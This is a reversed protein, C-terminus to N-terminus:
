ARRELVAIFFGDSDPPLLTDKHHVVTDTRSARVSDVVQENEEILLSCTAYVVRGGPKVKDLATSLLARQREVLSPLENEDLRAALDPARRLTGTGSCPADVLVRDFSGDVFPTDLGDAVVRQIGKSVSRTLRQADIDAAIVTAGTAALLRAKGGGGACLDLVREDVTAAVAAAVLQSGEDMPWVARRLAAPLKHLALKGRPVRVATACRPSSSAGDIAAIVDDRSVLRTDVALDPRAPTALATITDDDFRSQLREHLWRPWYQAGTVSLGSAANDDVLSKLFAPLSASGRAIVGDDLGAAIAALLLSALDLERRRPATGGEKKRADDVLKEVAVKHRAWSFALDASARRERPGTRRERAIVATVKDLPEGTARHRALGDLACAIPLPLAAHEILTRERGHAARATTTYHGRDRKSAM